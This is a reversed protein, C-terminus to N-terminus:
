PVPGRDTIRAGLAYRIIAIVALAVILTLLLPLGAFQVGLLAVILIVLDLLRM